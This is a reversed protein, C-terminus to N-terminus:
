PGVVPHVDLWTRGSNETRVLALATDMHAIAWGLEETVFSFQGDWTVTKLKTWLDGGDTTLFISRGLLWAVRRDLFFLSTSNSVPPLASMSLFLTDTWSTGGDPTRYIFLSHAEGGPSSLPACDVAVLWDKASFPTPSFTTCVSEDFLTREGMPAPLEQQEWTRGGDRTWNIFPKLYAGGGFTMLGVQGDAFALGSKPNYHINAAQDSNPDILREWSLGGDETGYVEVYHHGMGAGASLILWGHLEDAFLFLFPGFTADLTQVSEVQPAAQWSVGGDETRWVLSLHTVREGEPYYTVWARRTDLFFATASVPAATAPLPQPPTVDQWTNGGDLTFFVHDSALDVGGVAWGSRADFMRISTLVIVTGSDLHPISPGFPSETPAASGPPETAEVGAPPSPPEIPGGAPAESTAAPQIPFLACRILSLALLALILHYARARNM